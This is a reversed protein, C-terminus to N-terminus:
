APLWCGATGALLTASHRIRAVAMSAARSWTDNHPDYLEATASGGGAVLVRGDALLTATHGYRAIELSGAYRWENADPNYIEVSSDLTNGAGGVVLVTGNSLLTATHSSRPTHMPPAPVWRVVCDGECPLIFHNAEAPVVVALTSLVILAIVSRRCSVRKM